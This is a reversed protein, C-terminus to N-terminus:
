FGSRHYHVIKRRIKAWLYLDDICPKVISLEAKKEFSFNGAAVQHNATDVEFGIELIARSRALEFVAQKFVHIRRFKRGFVRKGDVLYLGQELFSRGGFNSMEASLRICVKAM